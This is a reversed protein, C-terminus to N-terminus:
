ILTHKLKHVKLKSTIARHNEKIINTLVSKFPLIMIM